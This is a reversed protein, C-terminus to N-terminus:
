GESAAGLSTMLASVDDRAAFKPQQKLTAVMLARADDRMEAKTLASALHFAIEPNDPAGANARRLVELGEKLRGYNVLLWGYTDAIEPSDDALFYARRAFELADNRGGIHRLWAYNNLATVDNPDLIIAQEYAIEARDLRGTNLLAAAFERMADVDNPNKELWRTMGDLAEDAFGIRQRAEFLDIAAESSPNEAFVTQLINHAEAPDGTASFLSLHAAKAPDIARRQAILAEVADPRNTAMELGIQAQAIKRDDPWRAAANRLTTRANEIQGAFGQTEALELVIESDNPSLSLLRQQVKIAQDPANATVLTRAVFRLTDPNDPDLAAYRAAEAVADDVRGKQFLGAILPRSLSKAQPMQARQETLFAVMEDTNGSGELFAAIEAVLAESGPQKQLLAKMRPLTEAARGERRDLQILARVADIREPDLFVAHELSQRAEDLNGLGAASRGRLSFLLASDDLNVAGILVRAKAADGEYLRDIAKVLVHRAAPYQMVPDTSNGQKPDLLALAEEAHRRQQPSGTNLLKSYLSTAERYRSTGVLASARRHLSEVDDPREALVVDLIDLANRPQDGALRVAALARRAEISNPKMEIYRRFLAGAQNLEGKRQKILAGLLVAPSFNDFSRQLHTFSRNAKDIEGEAYAVASHLYHAIPSNEALKQVTEADAKAEEIRGVSLYARARAILPLTSDPSYKVAQEFSAFAEDMFGREVAVEGRLSWAPAFDPKGTTIQELKEAAARFDKRENYVHALGFHGEVRRPDIEIIREYARAAADYDGLFSQAVGTITLRRVTGDPTASPGRVLSIAGEADGAQLRAEALLVATEDTPALTHARGLEKLAGTVDGEGLLMQGLLLRAAGDNPHIKLANKIETSAREFEGAQYLSRASEVYGGDVIEHVAQAAAPTSALYLAPVAVSTLFAALATKRISM